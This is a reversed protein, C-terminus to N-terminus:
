DLCQAVTGEAHLGGEVPGGAPMSGQSFPPYRSRHPFGMLSDRQM